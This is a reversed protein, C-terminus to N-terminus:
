GHMWAMFVPNCDPTHDHIIDPSGVCITCFNFTPVTPSTSHDPQSAGQQRQVVGLEAHEGLSKILM